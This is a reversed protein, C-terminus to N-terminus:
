KLLPNLPLEYSAGNGLSAPLLHSPCLDWSPTRVELFFGMGFKHPTPFHILNRQAHIQHVTKAKLDEYYFEIGFQNELTMNVLFM